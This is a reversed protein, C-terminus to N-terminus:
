LIFTDVFSIKTPTNLISYIVEQTFLWARTIFAVTFYRVTLILIAFPDKLTLTSNGQFLKKFFTTTAVPSTFKLICTNFYPSM